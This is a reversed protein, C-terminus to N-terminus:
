LNVGEINRLFFHPENRKILEYLKAPRRGSEHMEGTEKILNASLIRRRFSKTEVVDGILTEYTKQLAGLTFTKDMLFLPLSTYLVKQRLRMHCEKLIHAHDFALEEEVRGAKSVKTWKIDTASEGARLEVGRVPILAFYVTTISWHRPDRQKNGITGWQELYPTKVGTKELLKRKATDELSEDTELNIFGGVLSWKGQYPHHERKVLLVHLADGIVTFIATDVSANPRDFAEPNYLKLFEAESQTM